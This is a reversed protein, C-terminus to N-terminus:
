IQQNLQVVKSSDELISVGDVYALLKTKLQKM